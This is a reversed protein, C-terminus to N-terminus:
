AMGVLHPVVIDGQNVILTEFDDFSMMFEGRKGFSPGWSTLFRVQRLTYSIGLGLYEHGGAINPNNPDNPDGLDGVTILGNADANFMATTWLTGVCVPSVQIASRFTDFDFAHEYRDIWGLQQAAKAGALGSTGDDAPPYIESTVGDAITALHYVNLAQTETVWEIGLKTRALAAFDTNMFQAFTNGVCSSTNGQNLVPKTFSWLKDTDAGRRPASFEHARSRDDHEVHRGLRYPTDTPNPLVQTYVAM